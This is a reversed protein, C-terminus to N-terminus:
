SNTLQCIILYYNLLCFLPSGDSAVDEWQCVAVPQEDILGDSGMVPRLEPGERGDIRMM